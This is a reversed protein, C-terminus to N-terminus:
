ILYTLAEQHGMGKQRLQRYAFRMSEPVESELKRELMPKIATLIDTIEGPIIGNGLIKIRQTQSIFFEEGEQNIGIATSGVEWGMLQEAETANIPREIYTEGEYERIKYAGTGSQHNGGTNSLSRLTPSEETYIRDGGAARYLVAFSAGRKDRHLPSRHQWGGSCIAPSETAEAVGDVYVKVPIAAAEFIEQLTKKTPKPETARIDGTFVWVSYDSETKPSTATETELKGIGWIGWRQLRMLSKSSTKGEEVLYCQVLTKGFYLRLSSSKFSDSSSLFCAQAIEKLDPAIAQLPSIKALVEVSLLTQPQSYVSLNTPSLPLTKSLSNPQPSDNKTSPQPTPTANSRGSLNTDQPLQVKHVAAAVPSCCEQPLNEWQKWAEEFKEITAFDDPDPPEGKTDYFITTQGSAEVQHPTLGFHEPNWCEGDDSENIFFKESKIKELYEYSWQQGNPSHKVGDWHIVAWNEPTDIITGTRPRESNFVDRVRDGVKFQQTHTNSPVGVAQAMRELTDKSPPLVREGPRNKDLWEIAGLEAKELSEYEHYYNYIKWQENFIKFKITEGDELVFFEIRYGKYYKESITKNAQSQQTCENKTLEQPALEYWGKKLTLHKKERGDGAAVSITEDNIATIIATKGVWQSLNQTRTKLIRIRDGVKFRPEPKKFFKELVEGEIIECVMLLHHPIFFEKGEWVGIAMDQCSNKFQWSWPCERESIWDGPTLLAIDEATAPRKTLGTFLKGLNPAITTM